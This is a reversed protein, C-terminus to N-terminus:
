FTFGIVKMASHKWIWFSAFFINVHIKKVEVLTVIMSFRLPSLGTNGPHLKCNQETAVRPPPVM